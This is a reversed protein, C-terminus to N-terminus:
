QGGSGSAPGYIEPYIADAIAVAMKVVHHSSTLAIKPDLAVVRGDRIARLHRLSAHRARLESALDRAKADAAYDVTFIWPPDARVIAEIDLPAVGHLGLEVCAVNIAGATTALEDFFSGCGSTYAGEHWLVIRPREGRSVEARRRVDELTADMEGLLQTARDPEGVLAGLRTVLARTGTLNGANPVHVVPVGAQALLAQAEPRSFPFTLVVGPSLALIEETHVRVRHPVHRALDVVNSVERDDSFASVALLREPPLLALLVEDTPLNASVIRPPPIPLGPPPEGSLAVPRADPFALAVVVSTLVLVLAFSPVLARRM